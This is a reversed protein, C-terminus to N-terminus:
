YIFCSFTTKLCYWFDKEEINEGAYVNISTYLKDNVYIELNGVISDEKVPAKIKDPLILKYSVTDEDCLILGIEDKIYVDLFDNEVGDIVEVSKIEYTKDLVVQYNYNEIGYNFLTKSDSWKYNKNNPWGCGLLAVIYMKNDREIAAVYCYGAEGTFGTKGAIVGSMMDLFANKNQVSFSRTGEYDTFSHTRTQCIRVFEDKAPSDMVCYKMLLALEVASTSHKGNEDSADLGNPTIFYTNTLGIERAKKNMMTAFDEVNGGIHEAVAVASDNHSELILSFLLDEMRYQEGAKINMQVDPMRSAYDSITVIDDLNGYELALILTMIKTTSAMARVEYGNKEYLVRGNDGDILVASISYLEGESPKDSAVALYTPINCFCLVLALFFLLLRKM